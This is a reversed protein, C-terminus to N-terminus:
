ASMRRESEECAKCVGGGFVRTHRRWGEAVVIEGSVEGGEPTNKTYSRRRPPMELVPEFSDFSSNMEPSSPMPPTFPPPQAPRQIRPKALSASQTEPLVGISSSTPSSIDKEPFNYPVTPPHPQSTRKRRSIFIGICLLCVAGLFLYSLNAGPLSTLSQHPQDSLVPM